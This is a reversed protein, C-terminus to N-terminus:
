LCDDKGGRGVTMSSGLCLTLEDWGSVGRQLGHAPWDSGFWRPLIDKDLEGVVLRNIHGLCGVSCSAM